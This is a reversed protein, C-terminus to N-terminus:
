FLCHIVVGGTILFVITIRINGIDSIRLKDFLETDATIHEMSKIVGLESGSGIQFSCLGDATRYVIDDGTFLFLFFVGKDLFGEHKM